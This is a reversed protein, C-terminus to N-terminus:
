FWIAHTSYTCSFILDFKKSYIDNKVKKNDELVPREGEPISMSDIIRFQLLIRWIYHFSLDM